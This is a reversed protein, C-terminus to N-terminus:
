RPVVQIYACLLAIISIICLVIGINAKKTDSM